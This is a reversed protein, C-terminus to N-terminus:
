RETSRFAFLGVFADRTKAVATYLSNPKVETLYVVQQVSPMSLKVQKAILRKELHPTSMLYKINYTLVKNQDVLQVLTQEQSNIQYNIKVSEIHQHIYGLGLIVVIGTVMLFKSLNM